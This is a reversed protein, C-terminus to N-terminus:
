GHQKGQEQFSYYSFTDELANQFGDEDEQTIEPLDDVIQMWGKIERETLGIRKLFIISCKQCTDNNDVSWFERMMTQLEEKNVEM